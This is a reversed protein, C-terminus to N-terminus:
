RPQGSRVRRTTRRGRRSGPGHHNRVAARAYMPSNDWSGGRVVRDGESASVVAQRGERGHPMGPAAPHEAIRYPMGEIVLKLNVEAQFSM